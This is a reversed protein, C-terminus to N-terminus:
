QYINERTRIETTPEPADIHELALWVFGHEATFVIKEIDEAGAAMTILLNGTPALEVTLATGGEIERPAQELQIGTILVKHIILQTAFPTQLAISQQDQGDASGIVIVSNQAEELAEEDGPEVASLDFPDFSAIFAVRDGPVLRGGVARAPDLAITVQLLEAPVEVRSESAVAAPTQFRSAIIQEGPILDTTAVLGALETIDAVADEALVELPVEVEAVSDGILEALTGKEILDEVVLVTALEQGERAREEASQVYSILLLTGVVALLIAGGIAVWRTV